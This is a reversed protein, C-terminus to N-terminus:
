DQGTATGLEDRGTPIELPSTIRITTRTAIGTAAIANMALAPLAKLCIPLPPSETSNSESLGCRSARSRPRPRPTPLARPRAGGSARPWPRGGSRGRRPAAPRRRRARGAASRAPPVAAGGESSGASRSSTRWSTWARLSRRARWPLSGSSTSASTSRWSRSNSFRPCYPELRHGLLVFGITSSSSRSTRGPVYKLGCVSTTTTTSSETDISWSTKLMSAKSPASQTRIESSTGTSM